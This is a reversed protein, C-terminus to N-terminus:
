FRGRKIERDPRFSTQSMRSYGFSTDLFPILRFWFPTALGGGVAVGVGQWWTIWGMLPQYGLIVQAALEVMFAAGTAAMGLLCQVSADQHVILERQRHLAAGVSLLGLASIGLPNASLSDLCLGGILGLACWTPWDAVLASYVMLSPLLNLQFGLGYRLWSLNTQCFVLLVAFGLIFSLRLRNM